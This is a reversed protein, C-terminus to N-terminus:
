VVQALDEDVEANLECGARGRGARGLVGPCREALTAVRRSVYVALAIGFSV